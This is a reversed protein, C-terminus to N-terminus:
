RTLSEILCEFREFALSVAMDEHDVISLAAVVNHRDLVSRIARARVRGYEPRLNEQCKVSRGKGIERQGIGFAGHMSETVPPGVISVQEEKEPVEASQRAALSGTLNSISVLVDCGCSRAYRGYAGAVGYVCLREDLVLGYGEFDEQVLIANSCIDDLRVVEIGGRKDPRVCPKRTRSRENAPVTLATEPAAGGL